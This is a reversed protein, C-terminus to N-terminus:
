MTIVFHNWAKQALLGIQRLDETSYLPWPYGARYLDLARASTLGTQNLSFVAL